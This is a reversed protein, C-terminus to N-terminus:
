YYQPHVPGEEEVRCDCGPNEFESEAFSIEDHIAETRDNTMQHYVLLALVGTVAECM